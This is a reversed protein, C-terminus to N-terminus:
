PVHRALCHACCSRHGCGIVTVPEASFCVQCEEDGDDGRGNLENSSSSDGNERKAVSAAASSVPLARMAVTQQRSTLTATFSTFNVTAVEGSKLTLKATASGRRREAELALQDSADLKVWPVAADRHNVAGGRGGYGYSGGVMLVGRGEAGRGDIQWEWVFSATSSAAQEQERDAMIHRHIRGLVRRLDQASSSSTPTQHQQNHRMVAGTAAFVDFTEASTLCDSVGRKVRRKQKSRSSKNQATVTPKAVPLPPGIAPAAAAAAAVAAPLRFPPTTSTCTCGRGIACGACCNSFGNAVNAANCGCTACLPADAGNATQCIVCVEDAHGNEFTCAECSWSGSAPATSGSMDSLGFSVGCAGCNRASRPNQFTCVTCCRADAELDVVYNQAM